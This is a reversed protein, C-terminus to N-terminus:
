SVATGFAGANTGATWTAHPTASGWPYATVKGADPDGVYLYTGSSGLYAGALGRAASGHVVEVPTVQAATGPFAFVRGADADGAADTGPAGAAIMPDTGGSIRVQEGFYDGAAAAPAVV